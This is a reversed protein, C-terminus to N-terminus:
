AVQVELALSEHILRRRRSYSTDGIDKGFVGCLLFYDFVKVGEFFM